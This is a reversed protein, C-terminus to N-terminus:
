HNALVAMVGLMALWVKVTLQQAEIVTARQGPTKCLVYGEVFFWLPPLVLWALLLYVGDTTMVPTTELIHLNENGEVYGYPELCEGRAFLFICFCGYILGLTYAIASAPRWFLLVFFRKIGEFLGIRDERYTGDKHMDPFEDAIKGWPDLHPKGITVKTMTNATHLPSFLGM